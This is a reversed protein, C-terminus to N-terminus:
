RGPGLRGSFQGLARWIAAFRQVAAPNDDFDVNTMFVRGVGTRPNFFVAAFVGPDSGIHGVEGDARLDGVIHHEDASLM